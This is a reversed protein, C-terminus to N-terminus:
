QYRIEYGFASLNAIGAATLVNATVYPNFLAQYQAQTASNQDSSTGGCDAANAYCNALNQLSATCTTGSITYSVKVDLTIRGLTQLTGGNPNPEVDGPGKVIQGDGQLYIEQQCGEDLFAPGSTVPGLIGLTLSTPDIEMPLELGTGTPSLLVGSDNTPDSLLFAVPNPLSATIQSTIQAPVQIAPADACTETSSVTACFTLKQPASDYYGTMGDSVAGGTVANGLRCGTAAFLLAAIAALAREM